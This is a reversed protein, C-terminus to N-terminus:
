GKQPIEGMSSTIFGGLTDYGEDDPIQLGLQRNVDSVYARADADWSRDSVKKLSAQSAPEHEDSIDGVLEELVDEITVLGITGGYEDLVIGMHIKRQRFDELVDRLNRTEPVFFAPRINKRLDFQQPAADGLYVLLDRAYVVGIIKDLSGEYVPMRSLGHEELLAKVEPLAATAEIGVMEPRATMVQNVTTDGFRIVAEIMQREGKDVVGEREGEKVVSLIEEEIHEEQPEDSTKTAKRVISDVAHMLKTLPLAIVRMMDLLGTFFGVMGAGAYKALAHPVAVSVFLALTIFLAASILYQYAWHLTSGDLLRLFGMFIFLNSWLRGLATIFILDSRNDLIPRLLHSKRTLRLYAEFRPESLERLSYTLTSFWLSAFAAILIFLGILMPSM